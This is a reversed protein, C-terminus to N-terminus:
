HESQLHKAHRLVPVRELVPGHPRSGDFHMPHPPPPLHVLGLGGSSTTWDSSDASSTKVTVSNTLMFRGAAWFAWM